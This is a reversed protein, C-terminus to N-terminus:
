AHVEYTSPIVIYPKDSPALECECTISNAYDYTGSTGVLQAANPNTLKKGDTNFVRINTAPSEDVGGDAGRSDMKILVIVFHSRKHVTLAFQPNRAYTPKTPNGGSSTKDWAADLVKISLSPHLTPPLCCLCHCSPFPLSVSSVLRRLSQKPLM